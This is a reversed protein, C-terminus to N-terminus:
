WGQGYGSAICTTHRNWPTDKSKKQSESWEIKLGLEIQRELGIEHDAGFVRLKEPKWKQSNM